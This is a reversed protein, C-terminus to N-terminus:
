VEGRKRRELFGMIHDIQEQDMIQSVDRSMNFSREDGRPDKGMERRKNHWDRFAVDRPLSETPRGMYGQTRIQTPYTSHPNRLNSFVAGEPDLRVFMQGTQGSPVNILDNATIAYRAEAASPFGADQHKSQDMVKSFWYRSPGHAHLRQRLNPSDIGPWGKAVSPEEVSRMDRDFEKKAKKTIKSSAMQALLTDAMMHSFDGSEGSMAVHTLILPQGKEAERRIQKGMGSTVTPGSAWGADEKQGAQSRSFDYGGELSPYFSLEKGGVHTLAHGGMTRDGPAAMMRSGQTEEWSVPTEPSLQETPVYTASMDEIPRHVRSSLNSRTTLDGIHKAAMLAAQQPNGVRTIALAKNIDADSFTLPMRPPPADKFGGDAFGERGGVQGQGTGRQAHAQGVLDELRRSAEARLNNHAESVPTGPSGSTQTGSLGYDAGHEPFAVHAPYSSVDYRGNLHDAVAKAHQETDEGGSGALIDMTGAEPDTSHGEALGRENLEKYVGHIEDPSVGKPMHVRVVGAPFSGEFPQAHAGMMADQSFLDGLDHLSRQMNTPDDPHFTYNPNTFGGFGGHGAKVHGRVGTMKQWRPLFDEVMRKSIAAKDDPHLAEWREQLAPHYTKGPAIEFFASPAQQKAAQVAQQPASPQTQATLALAKKVAEDDGLPGGGAKGIRMTGEVDGGRAYAKFGRKLISERMRPTITLGPFSIDSPKDPVTRMAHDLADEFADPRVFGREERDNLLYDRIVDAQAESLEGGALEELRQHDSSKEEAPSKVGPVQHAELKAEPDHQKALALLSKPLVKDYYGEMGSSDGKGYRKAQEVGPTYVVKDYGGAAAEHLLRKLALDTWNQTNGIYPADPVPEKDTQSDVAHGYDIGYNGADEHKKAEDRAEEFSAHESLVKGTNPEFVQYPRAANYTGDRRAQQGWDSQVEEAHLIKEGNPGVRDKLRLHALVNPQQRWHPSAYNSPGDPLHMLIERYNEGGPLTYDKYKAINKNVGQRMTTEQIDPLGKQFHQALEERTVRPQGAFQENVGSYKLEDPKVGKLSALMQPLPGKAQPSAMAAEAAHSYLGQPNLDRTIDLAKQVGADPLSGGDAYAMGGRAYRRQIDIHKPDFVVYNRTGEGEDRSGGDFYRVGRIGAAAMAEMNKRDRPVISSVSASSLDGRRKMMTLFHGHAREEPTPTRGQVNQILANLRGTLEDPDRGIGLISKVHDSQEGLPKDYDLFHEPRGQIRVQHMHGGPRVDLINERLRRETEDITAPSAYGEEERNLNPDSYKSRMSSIAEDLSKRVEPGTPSLMEYIAHLTPFYAHDDLPNKPAKGGAISEALDYPYEHYGGDKTRVVTRTRSLIDRYNQAVPEHEAFYHGYGYAHVGQGSGLQDNRYGEPGVSHPGGQYATIGEDVHIDSSPVTGGDAFGEPDKRRPLDAVGAADNIKKVEDDPLVRNVKMHGGILWNGTMNPNTKYRYFGKLPVQDTIHATNPIIEGAKNRKARADAVSQWDKDAAMEVEAWVHNDPRYDPATLDPDSKKGIHTAVPVDGAHWGPRYALDGINSKVKGDTKGPDGAKAEVWKGMPVPTNADVFLPFLKGPQNAITRFLKYAKVTKKPSVSGGGAKAVREGTFIPKGHTRESIHVGPIQTAPHVSGGRAKTIDPENPNFDGNNDTASKIQHPHFVVATYGSDVNTGHPYIIADHGHADAYRKAAIKDDLFKQTRHGANGHSEDMGVILPNKISLHYKGVVGRDKGLREAAKDAYFGADAVNDSFHFGIGADDAGTNEGLRSRDFVKFHEGAGHYMHEPVIPHNGELFKDKGTKGGAVDKAVMLARRIDKSM